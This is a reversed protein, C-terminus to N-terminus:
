AATFTINALKLSIEGHEIKDAIVRLALTQVNAIAAEQTGGYVLVGPLEPIEAIWRGDDEQETEITFHTSVQGQM